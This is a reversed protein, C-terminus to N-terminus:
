HRGGPEQANTSQQDIQDARRELEGLQNIVLAPSPPPLPIDCDRRLGLQREFSILETKLAELAALYPAQSGTRNRVLDGIQVLLLRLRTAHRKAEAMRASLWVETDKARDHLAYTASVMALIGTIIDEALSWMEAQVAEKLTGIRSNIAATRPRLMQLRQDIDQWCAPAYLRRFAQVYQEVDDLLALLESEVVRLNGIRSHDQFEKLSAIVSQQRRVLSQATVTIEATALIIQGALRDATVLNHQTRALQAQLFQAKCTSLRERVPTLSITLGAAAAAAIASEADGIAAGVATQNRQAADGDHPRLTGLKADLGAAIRDMKNCFEVLTDHAETAPNLKARLLECTREIQCYEDTTLHDPSPDNPKFPVVSDPGAEAPELFQTWAVQAQALIAIVGKVHEHAWRRDTMGLRFMALELRTSVTEHTDGVVRSATFDLRQRAERARQQSALRQMELEHQRGIRWHRRFWLLFAIVALVGIVWPAYLWFLPTAHLQAHPAGYLLHRVM